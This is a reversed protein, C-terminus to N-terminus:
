TDPATDSSTDPATDSSTDPATDSSTDDCCGCSDDAGHTHVNSSASVSPVDDPGCACESGYGTHPMNKASDIGSSTDPTHPNVPIESQIKSTFESLIEEADTSKKEGYM